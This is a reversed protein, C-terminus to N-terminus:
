LLRTSLNSGSYSFAGKFCLSSIRWNFARSRVPRSARSRMRLSTRSPSRRRTVKRRFSRSTLTSRVTKMGKFFTEDFARPQIAMGVNIMRGNLQRDMPKKMANTRGCSGSAQIVMAISAEKPCIVPEM